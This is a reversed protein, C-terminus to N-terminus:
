IHYKVQAITAPLQFICKTLVQVFKNLSQVVQVDSFVLVKLLHLFSPSKFVHKIYVQSCLVFLVSKLKEGYM